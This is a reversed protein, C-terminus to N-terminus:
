KRICCVDLKLTIKISSGLHKYDKFQFSFASYLLYILFGLELADGPFISQNILQNTNLVLKLLIEAFYM